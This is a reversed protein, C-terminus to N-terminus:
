HQSGSFPTQTAFSCFTPNLAPKSSRTLSAASPTATKSRPRRGIKVWRTAHWMGIGQRLKGGRADHQASGCAATPKTSRGCRRRPQNGKIICTAPVRSGAAHSGRMLLATSLLVRCPAKRAQYLFWTRVPFSSALFPGAAQRWRASSAMPRRLRCEAEYLRLRAVRMLRRAGDPAIALRRPARVLGLSSM